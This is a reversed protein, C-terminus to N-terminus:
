QVILTLNVTRTLGASTASAVITYTGAPTVSGPPPNPNTGSELPIARGAGCGTAAVLCCLLVFGALCSRRSRRVALLGLPFLTALWLMGTRNARPRSRLAASTVGTLVTVSVTTTNGLPVSSPTVNCTSNAPEGTCTFVATGLINAASSLLLPYVANKGSAITVSTGGNPNLTFDVGAGTLALTQPSNPANDTVTLSGSRPGGVTPAFAIQMTCATSVAVSSGCTNSGPRIVFDGTIVISQVVLPVGGNNTLTVTQGASTVSVGTAPFTMASVPSLSVGPPAVGIGNLTVIQTRYQDAVNLVGTIAGVSKPQFAINISCASHPNLSNGCANVVTFDGSAIQAAILTLPLDGSNTLTIQQAVSATTLQQPAFTLTLPSLADTAPSTGVGSLSTSQAGADDNVTLTGNRTGSATPTFTIAVTCGTSPGLSAGCTNAAIKFDTGAISPTQLAIPTAGTNSITVNQAPSTANITTSPFTVTIPNLVIAAAPSASGSLRATAQGGAVNGFVTLVGSRSGTATPLFRVQVTCAFNVAIPATTCTDTENFDGTTAVRSVTLPANGTNTVTVTQPASATSVPQTGYVLATPNLSMAPQTATSATLLPIQWLGRGYTAARLEGVRGDGTSMASAAALEVIPANPLNTGYISWCNATACSTIQTTVYVGTDLAVYLTNADNPDVVVSNAPANPLNSSINTWHAGADVSRYLHAANIGNGAFGMVTVYITKGTADHPDAALSSLDFGGPNFGFSQVNTVPSTTLDSWATTKVATNATTLSFLHGGLSGGGDLSGAMGAYLVESGANQAAAANSAPGAAVLSRVVPNTNSCSANQPGGFLKSIANSSSWSAGNGAPGRWVRCTGILIDSSLAPDLLWPVDILSDDDAVQAPGITPTGAFNAATCATGNACERISVGAATSVYWLLPNTPDIAVTGGEGTSLQPWATTTSASATATAAAGNAGLGV